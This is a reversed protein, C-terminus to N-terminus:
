FLNNVMAFDDKIDIDDDAFKIGLASDVSLNTLPGRRGFRSRGERRKEDLLDNFDTNLRVKASNFENDINVDDLKIRNEM